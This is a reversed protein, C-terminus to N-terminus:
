NGGTIAIPGADVSAVHAPHSAGLVKNRYDLVCTAYDATDAKLGKQSCASQGALDASAESRNDAAETLSATLSDVCAAYDTNPATLGMTDRCVRKVTDVQTAPITAAHTVGAAALLVLALAGGSIQWKGLVSKM